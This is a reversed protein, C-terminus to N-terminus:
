VRWMIVEILMMREIGLGQLRGRVFRSVKVAPEKGTYVGSEGFDYSMEVGGVIYKITAKM